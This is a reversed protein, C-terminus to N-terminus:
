SFPFRTANKRQKYHLSACEAVVTRPKIHASGSIKVTRPPKNSLEQRFGDLQRILLLAELTVLSGCEAVHRM